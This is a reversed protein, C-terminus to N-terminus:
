IAFFIHLIFCSGFNMTSENPDYEGNRLLELWKERSDNQQQQAKEKSKKDM